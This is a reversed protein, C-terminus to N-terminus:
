PTTVDPIVVFLGRVPTKISGDSLTVQVDYRYACRADPADETDAPDVTIAAVGSTPDDVTIGSGISKEFLDDVTMIVTADTLDYPDGANDTLTLSLESSDGRILSLDNM